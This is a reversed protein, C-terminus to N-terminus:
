GRRRRVGFGILGVLGTALAMMSGPEPVSADSVTANLTTFINAGSTDWWHDNGNIDFRSVFFWLGQGSALSLSPASFTRSSNTGDLYSTWVQTFSDPGPQGPLWGPQVTYVKVVAQTYNATSNGVGGFEVNVDYTGASPAVWEVWEDRAQSTELVMTGAAVSGGRSSYSVAQSKAIADQGALAYNNWAIMSSPTYIYNPPGTYADYFTSNNDGTGHWDSSWAATHYEWFNNTGDSRGYFWQGNPNAATTFDNALNWSSALAPISALLAAVVALMFLFKRTRFM